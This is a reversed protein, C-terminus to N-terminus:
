KCNNYYVCSSTTATIGNASATIIFPTTSSVFSEYVVGDSRTQQPQLQSMVGDDSSVTVLAQAPKGNETYKVTIDWYHVTKYDLNLIPSFGFELKKTVEPISGFVPQEVVSPTTNQVIQQIQTDTNVQQTQLTIQQTQIDKLQAQLTALQQELIVVLQSYLQVLQNQLDASTLTDAYIPKISGFLLLFSLLGVALKHSTKM